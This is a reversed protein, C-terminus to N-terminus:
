EATTSGAKQNQIGNDLTGTPALESLADMSTVVDYNELVDLNKIANFDEQQISAATPAVPKNVPSTKVMWVALVALMAASIALRPQPVIWEFWRRVPEAAVRQRVRADFAFSPEILPMEDMVGWLARFEEARLRCEGCTTLHQEIEQRDASSSRRDLYAILGRSVNECNM